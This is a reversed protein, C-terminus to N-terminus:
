FKHRNIYHVYVQSKPEGMFEMNYQFTETIRNKKKM